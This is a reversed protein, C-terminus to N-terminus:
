NKQMEKAIMSCFTMDSKIYGNLHSGTDAYYNKADGEYTAVMRQIVSFAHTNAKDFDDKGTKQMWYNTANLNFMQAGTMSNANLAKEKQSTANMTMSAVYLFLASCRSNVYFLRDVSAEASDPKKEQMMFSELPIQSINSDAILNLYFIFAILTLFFKM